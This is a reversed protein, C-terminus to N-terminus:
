RLADISRVVHVTFFGMGLEGGHKRCQSLLAHGAFRTHLDAILEVVREVRAPDSLGDDLGSGEIDEYIHWVKSGSRELVVGRLAPCAGDMGVAPLWRQAVLENARAVRPSLRKVVVSASGGPDEFRLRYVSKKLPERL